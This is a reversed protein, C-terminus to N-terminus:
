KYEGVTWVQYDVYVKDLLSKYYPLYRSYGDVLVLGMPHMYVKDAHAALYYQDRTFGDGVAIVPKGSEKFRKLEAAVEQLKSLGSGTLTDLDLVVAKIRGDDRAARLADIVDRVLTEQIPSGQAKALARELPDGSLQEVLTGRLAIVLAAAGPVPVREGVVAVLLLLFLALLVLLHLFRRLRDLGRWIATVVRLPWSRNEM